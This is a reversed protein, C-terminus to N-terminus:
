TAWICAAQNAKRCAPRAACGRRRTRNAISAPPAGSCSSRYTARPPLATPAGSGEDEVVGRGVPGPHELRHDARDPGRLEDVAGVPGDDVGGRRREPGSSPRGSRHVFGCERNVGRWFPANRMVLPISSMARGCPWSRLSSCSSATAVSIAARGASHDAGRRCSWSGVCASRLLQQAVLVEVDPQEAPGVVVVGAEVVVVERGARDGDDGAADALLAEDEAPRSAGIARVAVGAGRENPALSM